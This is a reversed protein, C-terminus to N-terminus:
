ESKKELREKALAAEDSAPYKDMLQKWVREKETFNELKDYSLGLKYLASPVKNGAPFNQIVKNYEEASNKYNKKVYFCEGIWYQANDALEDQTYKKIIERFGELAMDTKGNQFDECAMRYLKEVETKEKVIIKQNGSSSDAKEAKGSSSFAGKIVFEKSDIRETKAAISELRKQSEEMRGELIALQQELRSLLVQLDAKMRNLAQEQEKVNELQESFGSGMSGQMKNIETKLDKIEKQVERLEKTRLLQIQSCGALFFLPILFVISLIKINKM